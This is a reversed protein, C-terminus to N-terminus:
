SNFYLDIYTLGGSPVNFYHGAGPITPIYGADDTGIDYTTDNTEWSCGSLCYQCVVNDIYFMYDTNARLISHIIYDTNGSLTWEKVLGGTNRFLSLTGSIDGNALNHIVIEVGTGGYYSYVSYPSSVYADSGITGISVAQTTHSGHLEAYIDSYSIAGSSQLTM